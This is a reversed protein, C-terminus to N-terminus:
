IRFGAHPIHATGRRNINRAHSLPWSTHLLVHVFCPPLHMRCRCLCAPFSQNSSRCGFLLAVSTWLESWCQLLLPMRHLVSELLSRHRQDKDLRPKKLKEEQGKKEGKERKGKSMVHTVNGHDNIHTIHSAHTNASHRDRMNNHRYTTSM